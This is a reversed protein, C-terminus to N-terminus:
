MTLRLTRGAKLTVHRELSKGGKIVIVKARLTSSNWIRPFAVDLKQGPTGTLSRMTGELLRVAITAEAATNVILSAPRWRLRRAIKTPHMERTITVQQSYCLPHRLVLTHPGPGVTVSSIAPQRPGWQGLVKGDLIVTVQGQPFPFLQFQRLAKLPLLMPLLVPRRRGMTSHRRMSPQQAM